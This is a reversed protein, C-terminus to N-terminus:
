GLCFNHTAYVAGDDTIYIGMGDLNWEERFMNERHSDSNLWGDVAAQAIEENTTYTQTGGDTRVPRDVYGLFLNEGYGRCGGHSARYRDFPGDGDPNIHSFYERDAMDKSHIRAVEDIREDREVRQLGREERLDNIEERALAEVESSSIETGDSTAYTSEGPDELSEASANADADAASDNGEAGDPQSPPDTPPEEDVTTPQQPGTDDAFRDDLMPAFYVGAAVIGVVLVLLLALRVLGVTLRWLLGALRGIM